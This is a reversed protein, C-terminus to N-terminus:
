KADGGIEEDLLEKEYISLNTDYNKGLANILEFRGLNLAQVRNWADVEARNGAKDEVVYVPPKFRLVAEETM